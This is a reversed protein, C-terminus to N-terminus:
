PQIFLGIMVFVVGVVSLLFAPRGFFLGFVIGALTVAVGIYLYTMRSEASADDPYQGNSSALQANALSDWQEQESEISKKFKTFEPSDITRTGDEAVYVPTTSAQVPEETKTQAPEQVPIERKVPIAAPKPNVVKANAVVFAPNEAVVTRKTTATPKVTKATKVLEPKSSSIKVSPKKTVVAVAAPKRFSAVKTAKPKSLHVSQPKAEISSSENFIKGYDVTIERASMKVPVRRISDQGSANIQGALIIVTLTTLVKLM